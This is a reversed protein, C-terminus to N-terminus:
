FIMEQESSTREEGKALQTVITAMNKYSQNLGIGGKKPMKVITIVQQYKAVAPNEVSMAAVAPIGEKNFAEVLGGAMEGFNPYHMAPGCLIADAGFKKAFGIFKQKVEEPHSSYYRDGCYLTAIIEAKKEKFLPALTEGPGLATKKGGPPLQAQEDSGMGATVHNLILIIKKM